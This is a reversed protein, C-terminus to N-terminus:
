TPSRIVLAIVNAGEFFTGNRPRPVARVFLMCEVSRLMCGSLARELIAFWEARACSLLAVGDGVHARDNWAEVGKRTTSRAYLSCSLLPLALPSGMTIM